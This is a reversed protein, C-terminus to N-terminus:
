NNQKPTEEKIKQTGTLKKRLLWCRSSGPPYWLYNQHTSHTSKTPVSPLKPLYRHTVVEAKKGLLCERALLMKCRGRALFACFGRPWFNKLEKKGLLFLVRKGLIVTAFCMNSYWNQPTDWVNFWFLVPFFQFKIMYKHLNSNNKCKKQEFKWM